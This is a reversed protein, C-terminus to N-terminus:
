TWHTDDRGGESEDNADNDDYGDNSDESGWELIGSVADSIM